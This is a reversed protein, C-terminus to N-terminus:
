MTPMILCCFAQTCICGFDPPNRTPIQYLKLTLIISSVQVLTITTIHLVYWDVNQFQYLLMSTFHFYELSVELSIYASPQHKMCMCLFKANLCRSTFRLRSPLRRSSPALLLNLAHLDDLIKVVTGHEAGM